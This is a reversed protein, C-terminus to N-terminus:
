LRQSAQLKDLALDVSGQELLRMGERFLAEAAATREPSGAHATGVLLLIVACGLALACAKSWIKAFRSARHCRLILSLIAVECVVPSFARHDTAALDKGLGAAIRLWHPNRASM